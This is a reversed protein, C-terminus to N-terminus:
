DLLQDLERVLRFGILRIRTEPPMYGRTAARCSPANCFWSGGRMVRGLGRAPGTPDTQPENSHPGNYWDQCWEWVNGNMDYLGWANPQKQAVPHTQFRSNNTYWAFSDLLSADDRQYYAHWSGARAAYEWEAETPLRYSGMGMENLRPLFRTVVDNWSVNEVPQNAGKFDSPNAGLVVEWQKQTVTTTQLAFAQSLSVPHLTEDAERHLEYAPSGMLYSGSEIRVFRMGLDNELPPLLLSAMSPQGGLRQRQELDQRVESEIRATDQDSLLLQRGLTELEQRLPETLAGSALVIRLANRYEEAAEAFINHPDLTLPLLSIAAAWTEVIWSGFRPNLQHHQQLEASLGQMVTALAQTDGVQLRQPVHRALGLLILRIAKSEDPCLDELLLQLTQPEQLLEAGRYDYLDKLIRGVLESM